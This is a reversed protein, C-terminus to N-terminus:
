HKQLQLIVVPGLLGSPLLPADKDYFKFSVVAKRNKSPRPLGKSLWEPVSKMFYGVAPSGPAYSYKFLDSWEVDDEEQEDGIMRNVWLNTVDIELTNDGKHLYDTIDAVFPAHWLNACQRGNVSVVALNKVDGMHLMYRSTRDNKKLRITTTYRATGSFYKIDPNTLESWSFLVDSETTGCDPFAIKWHGNMPITKVAVTQTMQLGPGKEQTGKRFVLFVSQHTDFHLAVQTQGDSTLWAQALETSGTEPNWVEPQKGSMNFSLTASFTTDKVNAIFYIDADGDRRHIWQLAQSETTLSADRSKYDDVYNGRQLLAQCRSMYSFLATAGNKWWTQGPAWWTGWMGFTMGPKANPWPNQAAAHLMMRNIGLCFARDATQKLAAPDDKWAHLPWCTFGEAYVQERGSNRAANVVRPVDKWGWNDPKAWFEACITADATIQRTIKATNIPNFPKSSGTGYPQVLLQLGHQSALQSMYGYYNEAFLDTVTEQWDRRWRQTAEQSNISVGALVPLWPLIDYGRRKQFEEPMLRTWEQGGAEYSDIELRQFTRGTETGALAIIQAPYADWFKKVAERSMKDCELGVGGAPATLSNTKGNTTHGFRYIFGGGLGMWLSPSLPFDSPKFVKINELRVISDDPVFVVAIDEYYNWQPDIEPQEPLEIQSVREKSPPPPLIKKTWVLKQMSYEPTVTPYASSSWGPCNHTGFTLGLRACENIAHQMLRRWNDTGIANTTDRVKVQNPGGVMFQQVGGIGAAKYAELDATIGEKSILGDMWQWIMIPKTEDSPNGFAAEISASTLFEKIVSSSEQLEDPKFGHGAGKIINLRADHYLKIARRSDELSVVRDADGQVILVPKQYRGIVEFPRLTRIEEFFRRGMPVDWLRTTDPIDELRPYRSNWNDPICLAPFVLVLQSIDEALNSAALASVLGGQSEGILVIGTTDVDQRSKFYRVITELDRQEDLISMQMTNSNSRSNVSGCPFDFTYCMYGLESLPKFYNRGFHHTGNFGHAIIAVPHKLIGDYPKNLMGYIHRNGNEIWLEEPNQVDRLGAMTRLFQEGWDLLLAHGEANLHATDNIGQFYKKRFITDMPLIGSTRAADLVPYNHNACVERITQTVEAFGSREVAWPTVFGIAAQPYKQRLGTCLSDLRQRFLKLLDSSNGIMFADNHGAIVLVFDASDTMETYRELMSKGFGQKSRDFAISNGNRGYNRYNMGLREAVRAHWTEEMPRRHNRVYSDGIVAITKGRFANEQATATVAAIVLLITLIINKMRHSYQLKNQLKRKKGIKIVYM